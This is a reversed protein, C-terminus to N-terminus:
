ASQEANGFPIVELLMLSYGSDFSTELLQVVGKSPATWMANNLVLFPLTAPVKLIMRLISIQSINKTSVHATASRANLDASHGDHSRWHTPFYGRVDLFLRRISVLIRAGWDSLLAQFAPLFVRGCSTKRLNKVTCYLKIKTASAPLFYPHRVGTEM